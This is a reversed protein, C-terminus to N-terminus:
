ELKKQTNYNLVIEEMRKRGDEAIQSIRKTTEDAVKQAANALVLETSKLEVM